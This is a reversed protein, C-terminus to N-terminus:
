NLEIQQNVEGDWEFKGKLLDYKLFGEKFLQNIRMKQEDTSPFQIVNDM